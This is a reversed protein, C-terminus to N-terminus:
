DDRQRPRNAINHIKTILDNAMQSYNEVQLKNSIMVIALGKRLPYDNDVLMFIEQDRSLVYHVDCSDYLRWKTAQRISLTDKVLTWLQTLDERDFHKLMDVFFQYVTTHGGLRIIKWYVRKSETHIDWDIIPHKVQLAEVYVEEVPVLQMMEKLDKESVDEAIKMKKASDQELRLGKGKFREGEEKSAMPVFDEIKAYQDQYKVLENIMDIKEGISLDAAFQEYEQLYKAIIENNKYLGDILMQLEEEKQFTFKQNPLINYGILALNELLEADPLTSIGEEDNLKLNRRISSEFIARLKGDLTALIKTGEDTTENWLGLKPHGKIYRFIRKIAHLHCEKPTVQHRACACVVFMIDPRSATLYMLSGIMSRYLHLEVDKGPRDKGWPNEKDMPTNASRVDSYGFKKLIDGVYKDQSLFIGDKKQLVQLGLFFTLEGMASMQFNEHMLAEFERVDIHKTCTHQVPNCSIRISSKSDCYILVKDYFFGYDTLQTRMWLVLKDGLFQVSGSTSKRDLHCGAHDAYVDVINPIFHKLANGSNSYKAVTLAFHNGSSLQQTVEALSNASIFSSSCTLFSFSPNSLFSVPKSDLKSLLVISRWFLLEETESCPSDDHLIMDLGLRKHWLMSEDTFALTLLLIMLLNLCDQGHCIKRPLLTSKLLLLPVDSYRLGEKNKDTRLCRLLTDLDKSTSEFGTLKSDLGEKEKKVQSLGLKYHYLTNESDSLEKNLKIIKTNLSDTNKKIDMEEIDNEDIQTIDEYKIQSGNSQSAIYAYVTDHSISAAAVDVSANFVQTSATLVSATHVKGKRSSTNASSIFAMNQSNSELKKQVEPEYVKLHNYVDDLSMTDLYDRTRWVITYMLWEPALSTLFKQNLDDQEIEVDMFGLHSVIAQLRNFTQKLTESGKAKFNGYQQKLQNKKTKKTAANGSFTKLIAKVNNRRKQMDETTIVVTRGMKKASSESAAQEQPAKYSDGFEIVECLAYHENQLYQQIRFKWQEFKGTDLILIKAFTPNPQDM